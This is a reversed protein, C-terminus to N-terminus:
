FPPQSSQGTRQHAGMEKGSMPLLRHEPCESTPRSLKFLTVSKVGGTQLFFISPSECDLGPSLRFWAKFPGTYQSISNENM